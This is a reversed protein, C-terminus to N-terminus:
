RLHGSLTRQALKIMWLGALLCYVISPFGLGFIGLLTLRPDEYSLLAQMAPSIAYGLAISAAVQLLVKAMDDPALRPFRVDIWLAIAGAGVGILGTLLGTNM